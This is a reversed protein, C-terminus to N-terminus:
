KYLVERRSPIYTRISGLASSGISGTPDMDRSQSRKETSDGSQRAEPRSGHDLDTVSDGKGGLATGHALYYHPFM